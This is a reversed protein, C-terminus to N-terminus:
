PHSPPWSTSTRGPRTWGTPTCRWWRACGWCTPMCWAPTSTVPCACRQAAMVCPRRTCRCPWTLAACNRMRARPPPRPTTRCPRPTAQPWPPTCPWRTPTLESSGTQRRQLAKSEVINTIWAEFSELGRQAEGIAGDSGALKEWLQDATTRNIRGTGSLTRLTQAVRKGLKREVYLSGTAYAKPFPFSRWDGLRQRGVESAGRADALSVYGRTGRADRTPFWVDTDRLPVGKGRAGFAVARCIRADKDSNEKSEKTDTRAILDDGGDTVLSLASLLGAFNHPLGTDSGVPPPLPADHPPGVMALLHFPSSLDRNLLFDCGLRANRDLDATTPEGSPIDFFRSFVIGVVHNKSKRYSEGLERLIGAGTGGAVSGVIFVRRLANASAAGGKMEDNFLDKKGRVLNRFVLAALKPTAYFGEEIKRETEEEDYCLPFLQSGAHEVCHALNAARGGTAPYPLIRKIQFNPQGFRLLRETQATVRNAVNAGEADVIVVRDPMAAIGLLNLYGLGLGFRQGTGGVLVLTYSM